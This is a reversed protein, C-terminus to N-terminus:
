IARYNGIEALNAAEYVGTNARALQAKFKDLHHQKVPYVTSIQNWFVKQACPPTTVSGQYVWRNDFDVMNVLNAYPVMAAAPVGETDSWDLSDFFGDIIAIEDESLQATYDDVDFMIGLAAAIFGNAAETPDNLHVTHM